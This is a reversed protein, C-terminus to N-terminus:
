NQSGPFMAAAVRSRPVNRFIMDLDRKLAHRLDLQANLAQQVNGHSMSRKDMYNAKFSIINPPPYQACTVLALMWAVLIDDHGAEVEWRLRGRLTAVGMQAVLEKDFVQMGGPIDKMGLRLKERFAQRMLDRTAHTTEWGASDSRAKGSLKDDKGRWRYLNPYFLEDRLKRQAWRGLNGTLEINIIANNYWRGAMDLQDGLSSPDIKDAFRAAQKGTTGNYVAYAAFDRTEYGAAADAGIYYYARDLPREWLLLPGRDAVEFFPKGDRRILHGTAIPDKKTSEAYAVEERPFAPDGTSLFAVEPCWPYEQSFKVEEGGCESELTRRMWAIQSKTAFYPRKMLERELDTAPADSAESAPRHCAPDGLWDLFVPVYGNWRPTNRRACASNWFEYFAEGEDTKGFATSEVAVITNAGKSVAPLLSLFSDVGPYQAAESLHLANLTLGRGSGLSGATAIDLLSNGADHKFYIRKTRLETLPFRGNLEEALDHPVRFLGLESTKLEHAVIELHAQSYTLGYTFFLADILSSVGVRRAKLFCVRIYKEKEYQERMVRVAIQQNPNLKFPIAVGDDRSKIHLRGLLQVARDLNM